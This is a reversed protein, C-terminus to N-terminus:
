KENKERDKALLLVILILSQVKKPLEVVYKKNLEIRDKIQLHLSNPIYGRQEYFRVKKVIENFTLVDDQSFASLSTMALVILVFKM